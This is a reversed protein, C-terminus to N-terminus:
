GHGETIHVTVTMDVQGKTHGTEARRVGAKIVSLHLDVEAADVAQAHSRGERHGTVVALAQTGQGDHQLARALGIHQRNTGGVVGDHNIGGGRVHALDVEVGAIFRAEGGKTVERLRGHGFRHETTRHCSAVDVPVAHVIQDDAVGAGVGSCCGVGRHFVEGSCRGAVVSCRSVADLGVDLVSQKAVVHGTQTVHVVVTKLVVDDGLREVTGCCKCPPLQPQEVARVTGHGAFRVPGIRGSLGISADTFGDDRGTIDVLVAEVVDEDGGNSSVSGAGQMEVETRACTELSVGLEHRLSFGTVPQGTADCRQAIEVAVAQTFHHIGKAGIRGICLVVMVRHELDERFPIPLGDTENEVAIQFM